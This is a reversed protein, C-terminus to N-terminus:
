AMAMERRFAITCREAVLEPVFIEADIPGCVRVYREWEAASSDYPPTATLAIVTAKGELADLLAELSRQWESRLHHAEDLCITGVGLEASQFTCVDQYYDVINTIKIMNDPGTESFAVTRDIYYM